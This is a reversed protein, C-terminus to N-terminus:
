IIYLLFAFLYIWLIDLFHWYISTLEIGLYNEKSYKLNVSKTYTIFISILGGIVHILHAFTIVYLFSSAPSSGEGVFFKGQDVLSSWGKFQCIAFIVGCVFTLFIYDAPNKGSRVTKKSIILFISGLIIVLTSYWFYKPMSIDQWGSESSRVIVASTLGAFFLTISVMGIWLLQKYTTNKLNLDM